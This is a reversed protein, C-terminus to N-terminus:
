KIEPNHPPPLEETMEKVEAYEFSSLLSRKKFPRDSWRNVSKLRSNKIYRRADKEYDFTAVVQEMDTTNGTWGGYGYEYETYSGTVQFM